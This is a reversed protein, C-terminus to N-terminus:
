RRIARRGSGPVTQEAPTLKRGASSASAAVKVSTLGYTCDADEYRTIFFDPERWVRIMGSPGDPWSLGQNPTVMLDTAVTHLLAGGYKNVDAIKLQGDQAYAMQDYGEYFDGVAAGYNM